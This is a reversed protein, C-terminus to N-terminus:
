VKPHHETLKATAGPEEEEQEEDRRLYPSMAMLVGVAILFVGIATLVVFPLFLVGVAAVCIGGGVWGLQRRLQQSQETTLPPLGFMAWFIQLNSNLAGQGQHSVHSLSLLREKYQFISPPLRIPHTLQPRTSFRIQLPAQAKDQRSISKLGSIFALLAEAGIAGGMIFPHSGNTLYATGSGM